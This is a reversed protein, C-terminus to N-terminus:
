PLSHGKHAHVLHHFQRPVPLVGDAGAAGLLGDTRTDIDAVNKMIQGIPPSFLWIVFDGLSQQGIPLM